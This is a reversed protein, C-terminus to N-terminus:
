ASAQLETPERDVLTDVLRIVEETDPWAGRAVLRGNVIMAQVPVRALTRVADRFGVRHRRFDRFLLLGLAVANRPDVVDIDITDRYRTKLARYLPGMAEMAARREPFAPGSGCGLFDGEVRGCCGSGTLQGGQERVLIVSCRTADVEKTLDIM